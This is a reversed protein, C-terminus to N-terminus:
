EYCYPPTEGTGSVQSYKSTFIFEATGGSPKFIKKSLKQGLGVLFQIM